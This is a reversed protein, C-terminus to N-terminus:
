LLGSSRQPRLHPLHARRDGRAETESTGHHLGDDIAAAALVLASRAMSNERTGSASLLYAVIVRREALAAEAEIGDFTALADAQVGKVREQARRAGAMIIELTNSM